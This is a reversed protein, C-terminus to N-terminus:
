VSRKLDLFRDSYRAFRTRLEDDDLGFMEASVEVRGLRGRQHDALDYVQAVIGREDAMFDDFRVDVSREPGIRDRDRILANLMADLRDVPSAAIEHVPVPWRHMRASYTIMALMSLVVPVPDRHTFVVVSGGFVRDLVTM